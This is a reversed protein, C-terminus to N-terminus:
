AFQVLESIGGVHWRTFILKLLTTGVISVVAITLVNYGGISIHGPRIATSDLEGVIKLVVLLGIMGLLWSVPSVGGAINSSLGAALDPTAPINPPGVSGAVQRAATPQVTDFAMQSGNLNSRISGVM